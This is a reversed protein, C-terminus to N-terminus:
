RNPYDKNKWVTNGKTVPKWLTSETKQDLWLHNSDLIDMIWGTDLTSEFDVEPRHSLWDITVPTWENDHLSWEFPYVLTLPNTSIDANQAEWVEPWGSWDPKSM